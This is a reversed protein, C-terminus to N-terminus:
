NFDQNEWCSGRDMRQVEWIMGMFLSRWKRFMRMRLSGGSMVVGPCIAGTTFFHARQRIRLRGSPMEAPILNVDASGHVDAEEGGDSGCECQRLKGDGLLRVRKRVALERWALFPRLFLGLLELPVVHIEPREEAAAVLDAVASRELADRDCDACLVRRRRHQEVRFQQAKVGRPFTPERFKRPHAASELSLDCRVAIHLNGRAPPRAPAGRDLVVRALFMLAIQRARLPVADVHM